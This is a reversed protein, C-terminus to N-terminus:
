AINFDIVSKCHFRMGAMENNLISIPQNLSSAWFQKLSALKKPVSVLRLKLGCFIPLTDKKAENRPCALFSSSL